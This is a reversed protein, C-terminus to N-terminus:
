MAIKRVGYFSDALKTIAVTKGDKKLILKAKYFYRGKVTVKKDLYTLADQERIKKYGAKANKSRYYAVNVKIGDKKLSQMLAKQNKDLEVRVKVVRNKLLKTRVKIKSKNLIGDILTETDEKGKAVNPNESKNEESKKVINNDVPVENWKESGQELRYDDTYHFVIESGNKVGQEKVGYMPHIGDLTYMWGSKSGNDFEALTKGDPKTISSVYNGNFKEPKTCKYGYKAFVKEIVDIVKADKAVEVEEKAIWTELNKGKLTQVMGTKEPDNEKAGLLTFYVKIDSGAPSTGGPNVPNETGSNGGPTTGPDSGTNDNSIKKKEINKFDFIYGAKLGIFYQIAARYTQETAMDVSGSSKVMWNYKYSNKIEYKRLAHLMTKNNATIDKIYQSDCSALGGIVMALSNSNNSVDGDVDLKLQIASVAKEVAAKVEPEKCYPGLAYLAFGTADQWGYSDWLGEANAMALLAQVMEKTVEKVGPTKYDDSSLAYIAPALIYIDDKVEEKKDILAKILNKGYYDEPDYGLARLGLIGKDLAKLNKAINDDELLTKIIELEESKSVYKESFEDGLKILDIIQWVDKNVKGKNDNFFLRVRKYLNEKVSEFDEADVNGVIEIPVSVKYETGDVSVSFRIVTNGASKATVNYYYNKETNYFKDKGKSLDLLDKEDYQAKIELNKLNQSYFKKSSKDKGHIFLCIKDGVNMTIGSSSLAIDPDYDWDSVEDDGYNDHEKKWHVTLEDTEKSRDVTDFKIYNSAGSCKAIAKVHGTGIVNFFYENVKGNDVRKILNSGESIEWEVSDNSGEVRARFGYESGNKIEEYAGAFQHERLLDVWKPTIGANDGYNYREIIIRVESGNTSNDAYGYSTSMPTFISIVMIFALLISIKAKINKTKM